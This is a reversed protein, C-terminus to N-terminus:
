GIDQMECSCLASRCCGYLACWCPQLSPNGLRRLQQQALVAIGEGAVVAAGRM